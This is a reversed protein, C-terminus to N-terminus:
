FSKKLFEDGGFRLIPFNQQEAYSLVEEPLEKFIVPKYALASAGLEILNKVANLLYEPEQKAFLLSSLM